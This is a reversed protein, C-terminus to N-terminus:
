LSAWWSCRKQEVMTLSNWWGTREPSGANSLVKALTVGKGGIRVHTQRKVEEWYLVTLSALAALFDVVKAFPIEPSLNDEIRKAQIISLTDHEIHAYMFAEEATMVDVDGGCYPKGWWDSTKSPDIKNFKNMICRLLRVGPTAKKAHAHLYVIVM